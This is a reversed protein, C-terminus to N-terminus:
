LNEIKDVDILAGMKIEGDVINIILDCNNEKKFAKIKYNFMDQLYVANTFISEYKEDINNLNNKERWEKVRANHTEIFHKEHEEINM